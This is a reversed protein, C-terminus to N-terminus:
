HYHRKLSLLEDWFLIDDVNIHCNEVVHLYIEAKCHFDERNCNVVPTWQEGSKLTYFYALGLAGVISDMDGSTNGMVLRLPKQTTFADKKVARLYNKFTNM